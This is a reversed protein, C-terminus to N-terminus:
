AVGAEQTSPAPEHPLVCRSARGEGGPGTLRVLPISGPGCEARAHPCRQAFRCGDSWSGPTPVAGPIVPLAGRGGAARPTVTSPHASLLARTYPHAADRFLERVGAQEVVEGAYMVMARDCLDAVVGWDHTVLLITLVRENRLARLLRLIEAQVTVDLATTPEDAILLKPDGALARAIAVRQAMGGSLQHPFRRATQEPNPLQMQRLLDVALRRAEGRSCRRHLRVVEAIQAGVPRAPDLAAMPEQSIFAIGGGRVARWQKASLGTLERGDFRVSGETIQAGGRPLGIVARAVSTKGCGSEGVVGVIEGPWLDFGVGQAVPIRMGDRVFALELGRVSLLADPQHPTREITQGDLETSSTSAPDATAAGQRRIRGGGATGSWREVATDRVADGLLGLCLITLGTINGASLLLWVDQDIVQSGDYTLSGWDPSAGNAGFGLFGLGTTFLLAMGAIITAQAIVAGRVRPLVHRVLIRPTGHGAVKAADVYLEHRVAATASRVVRAVPPALLLGLVAIAAAYDEGFVSLVALVLVMAPLSLGLDIVYSVVQDVRGGCYGAVLGLPVAAALCVSVALLSYGLAPRGGYLLRSLTDRGLQDTGLWHAGSPGALPMHLDQATPSYPAIWPALLVAIVILGLLATAILPVPKLLPNRRLHVREPRNM